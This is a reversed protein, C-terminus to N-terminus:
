HLFAARDSGLSATAQRVYEEAAKRSAEGVSTSDDIAFVVYQSRTTTLRTLGALALVILVAIVLRTALSIRMQWKGFDVLSRFSYYVLFPLVILAILWAPRTLELPFSFQSM